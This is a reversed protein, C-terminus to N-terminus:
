VVSGQQVTAQHRSARQERSTVAARDRVQGATEFGIDVAQGALRPLLCTIAQTGDLLVPRRELDGGPVVLREEVVQDAQMLLSPCRRSTRADERRLAEGCKM